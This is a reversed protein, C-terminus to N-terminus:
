TSSFDTHSDAVISAYGSGQVSASTSADVFATNLSGLQSTTNGQIQVGNSQTIYVLAGPLEPEGFNYVGAPPANQLNRYINNSVTVGSASGSSCPPYTSTKSPTAM